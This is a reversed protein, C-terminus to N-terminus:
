DPRRTGLVQQDLNVKGPISLSYKLCCILHSNNTIVSGSSGLFYVTREKPSDISQAKMKEQLLKKAIDQLTEKGRLSDM